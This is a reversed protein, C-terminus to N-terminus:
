PACAQAGMGAQMCMHRVRQVFEAPAARQNILALAHLNEDVQNVKPGRPDHSAVPSLTVDVLGYGAPFVARTELEVSGGARITRVFTRNTGGVKLDSGTFVNITVGNADVEGMNAVVIRLTTPVGPTITPSPVSIGAANVVLRASPWEEVPRSLAGPLATLPVRMRVTGSCVYAAILTPPKAAWRPQDEGDGALSGVRIWAEVNTLATGHPGVRHAVVCVDGRVIGEDSMAEHQGCWETTWFTAPGEDSSPLQDLWSSFPIQPLNADLTVASVSAAADFFPRVPDTRTPASGYIGYHVTLLERTERRAMGAPLDGYRIRARLALSHYGPRMAAAGRLLQDLGRVASTGSKLHVVPQWPDDDLRADVDAAYEVPWPLTLVRDARLHLAGPRTRSSLPHEITPVIPAAARTALWLLDRDAGAALAEKLAADLEQGDDHTVHRPEGTRVLRELAAVLHARDSYERAPRAGDSAADPGLSLLFLIPAAIM